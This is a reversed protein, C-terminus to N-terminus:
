FVIAQSKLYIYHRKVIGFPILFNNLEKYLLINM